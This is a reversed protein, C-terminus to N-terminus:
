LQPQYTDYVRGTQELQERAFDAHFAEARSQWHMGQALMPQASQATQASRKLNVDQAQLNIRKEAGVGLREALVKDELQIHERDALVRARLAQIRWHEGPEGNQPYFHVDAQNLLLEDSGAHHEMRTGGLTYALRGQADFLRAKPQEFAHDVGQTRAANLPLPQFLSMSAWTSLLAM